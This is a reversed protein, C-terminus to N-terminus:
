VWLLRSCDVLHQPHDNKIVTLVQQALTTNVPFKPPPVLDVKYFDRARELDKLMYVMKFPNVGPPVNGTQNMIGGLSFPVYDVKIQWLPEYRTLVEFGLWSYPSVVDYYFVIQSM